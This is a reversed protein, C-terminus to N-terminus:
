LEEKDDPCYHAWVGKEDQSITWKEGESDNRFINLATQFDTEQTDFEEGCEDCEFIIM